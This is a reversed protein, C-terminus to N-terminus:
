FDKMWEFLQYHEGNMGLANYVNQANQNRKDVYLRLGVLSKENNVKNKLFQYIGKFVGKKRFKKSVYVSHIWLVTGNRWDSWEPITLTCAIVEENQIVIYYVGKQPNLFLEHIGQNVVSRDLVLNETEIALNLQFQVLIEVHQSKALQIDM